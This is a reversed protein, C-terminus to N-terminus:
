SRPPSRSALSGLFVEPTRGDTWVFGVAAPTLWVSSVPEIRAPEAQSSAAILDDYDAGDYFGAIWLADALSVGAIPLVLGLSTVLLVILPFRCTHLCGSRGSFHGVRADFPQEPVRDLLMRCGVLQPCRASPGGCM